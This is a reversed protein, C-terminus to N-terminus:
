HGRRGKSKNRRKSSRPPRGSEKHKPAPPPTAPEPASEAHGAAPIPAPERAAAEAAPAEVPAGTAAEPQKPPEVPPAVPKPPEAPAEAQERTEVSAKAQPAPPPTTAQPEDPTASAAVVGPGTTVRPSPPPLSPIVQEGRVPAAPTDADSEAAPPPATPEEPAPAATTAPPTQGVPAAPEKAVAGAGESAAPPPGPEKAVAGAGTSAAPQPPLVLDESDDEEDEYDDKEVLHQLSLAPGLARRSTSSGWLQRVVGTTLAEFDEPPPQDGEIYVIVQARKDGAPTIRKVQVTLGEHAGALTQQVAERVADLSQGGTGVTAQLYIGKKM